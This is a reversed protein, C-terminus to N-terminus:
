GDHRYKDEQQAKQAYIVPESQSTTEIMTRTEHQSQADTLGDSAPASLPLIQNQSEPFAGGWPYHGGPSQHECPDWTSLPQVLPASYGLKRRGCGACWVHQHNHHVGQTGVM